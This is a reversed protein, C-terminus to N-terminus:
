KIEQVLLSEIGRDDVIKVAIMKNEGIEFPLSETGRYAEILEEDVEARLATTLKAWGDKPGALPFFVQRPMMSRGDYDTDLMWMAIKESGGSDVSGTKPNFYDFGNVLVQFKGKHEGSNLLNVSVDPQGVLWFSENSSRKKKLDDTFLDANMQAKLLSVGSWDISDIDKAAEPDFQFAAFIIVTPSPKIKEAEQIALEVQRQELPAFDPGFSVLVRQPPNEDTSGDAHLWRTGVMPELRSLKLYTKNKLRIGTRLLEQIWDSPGNLSNEPQEDEGVQRVVPAPVAEVTFPGTVRAKTPDKVPEDRLEENPANRAILDDIQVRPMNPKINQNNAIDGLTIHPVSKYILGGDIGQEPFKLAFYNYVQTMLRQKALTVAVRSTDCTIWRRGWEEAVVATTGSGCTPDFVLDGPDTAMLMCREVLSTGTQVCYIKQDLRSQVSGGIDDWMNTLSKVEFDKFYRIYRLTGKSTPMLRKAIALKDMGDPVSTKWHRGPGCDYKKGEFEYFRVTNESAGQSVLNDLHFIRSGEPLATKGSKEEPTMARRHGNVLEIQDYKSDPDGVPSNKRKYLARYKVKSIDKAYWLLYDGNRSLTSSDFGGSTTYAILSLFNKQGFVEDLLCRVFHLNTESIQLFISGTDNLLDKSLLLRDRLYTLYSHIGLEWTDRFAKITEPEASLDEDKGDAVEKKNVFPQFNSGYKIGYPPDFYIMQVKAGLGEKELLSNMVLMSDGAILRNAWDKQHQYFEIEKIFSLKNIPRNFLNLQDLISKEQRRVADIITKPDIREHVHLSVTPVEYSTREAKGTWQLSPDLHPDYYYKKRTEPKETKTNVLGVQPNNPRKNGPHEYAEIPKVMPTPEARKALKAKKVEPSKKKSVAQESEHKKAM